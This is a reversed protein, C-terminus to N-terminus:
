AVDTNTEPAPAEYAKARAVIEKVFNEIGEELEVIGQALMYAPTSVINNEEDVLIEEVDKNVHTHGLMILKAAVDEDQGITLLLNQERLAVAAVSPPAICMFGMPKKVAHMEQILLKLNLEVDMDDVTDRYGFDSLNKAAGFGGPVILADLNEARANFLSNVKGRTIRSSEVLANRGEAGKECKGTNHNVVQATEIDPAFFEVKAGAKKLHLITLVAEQVETGDQAGCGSLVVGVKIGM